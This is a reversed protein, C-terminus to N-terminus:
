KRTLIGMGIDTVSRESNALVAVGIQAKRNLGVFSAFGGTGGDHWHLENGDEVTTIHWGLGIRVSPTMTPRRSILALDLAPQLHTQILGLSASLFKMLDNASSHLAGTGEIGPLEWYAAAKARRDHGQALRPALDPTITVLTSALALPRCIRDVLLEEYGRGVSLALAHGLLGAGVNSYEYKQGVDRTLRYNSLFAYLRETSYAGYPNDRHWLLRWFGLNDPLRPLGSSHTSLDLLTIERGNRSPVRCSNPL